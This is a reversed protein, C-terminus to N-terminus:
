NVRKSKLIVLPATSEYGFGIYNTGQYSQVKPVAKFKHKISVTDVRSPLHEEFTVEYWVSKTCSNLALAVFIIILKKM